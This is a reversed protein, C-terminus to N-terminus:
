HNKALSIVKIFTLTSIDDKETLPCIRNGKIFVTTDAKKEQAHKAVTQMVIFPSSTLGFLHSNAQAIRTRGQEDECMLRVYPRDEPRLKVRLFMQKIDSTLVYRHGRFRTLVDFINSMLNPGPLLYQNISGGKSEFAGNIVIRYKTSTKDLRVVMFSPIVYGFSRDELSLLQIYGKELWEQINLQYQRWLEGDAKM